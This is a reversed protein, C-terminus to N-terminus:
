TRGVAVAVARVTGVGVVEPLQRQHQGLVADGAYTEILAAHGGASRRGRVFAVQRHLTVDGIGHGPTLCELSVRTETWQDQQSVTFARQNGAQSCWVTAGARHDAHGTASPRNILHKTRLQGSLDRRAVFLTDQM